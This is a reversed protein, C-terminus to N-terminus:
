DYVAEVRWRGRELVLLYAREGGPVDRAPVAGGPAAGAPCAGAPVAGALVQLRAVRQGASWWGEELPWPTSWAVVPCWPGGAVSLREPRATLLGRGTVGVPVDGGGRLEAPCATVLVRAPAPLPVAGPWPPGARGPADRGQAGSGARPRWPVLRCREALGRGGALVPVVVAEAGLRRQLTTLVEEAREDAASAGGWFGPQREVLALERGLVAVLRQAMGPVRDGPLEGDLGRAVRHCRAGAAGFRALVDAAPLEAFRGLTTLGLRALVGALEPDGLVDVPWPALFRPTEGPPVTTGTSAALAAAFLGEAIGLRIEGDPGPPSSPTSALAAAVTERVRGAVAQETGFYRAPGRVPLACVGPRVVDVWPCVSALHEVVRGLLRLHRGGDDDAPTALAACEVLLLRPPGTM